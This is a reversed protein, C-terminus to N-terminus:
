CSFASIVSVSFSIEAEEAAEQEFESFLFYLIFAFFRRAAASTPASASPAVLRLLNQPRRMAVRRRDEQTQQKGRSCFENMVDQWTRELMKPDHASLYVKAMAVNMMPSRAAENKAHLIRRAAPGDTIKLSHQRGTAGDEVYYIGNRKFLYFREKM